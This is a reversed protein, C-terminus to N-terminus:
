LLKEDKFIKVGAKGYTYIYSNYTYINEGANIDIVQFSKKPMSKTIADEKNLFVSLITIGLIVIIVIVFVKLNKM